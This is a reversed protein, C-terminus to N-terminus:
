RTFTTTPEDCWRCGPDCRSEAAQALHTGTRLRM